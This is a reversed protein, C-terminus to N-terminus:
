ERDRDTETEREEQCVGVKEAVALGCQREERGTSCVIFETYTHGCLAAEREEGGGRRDRVRVCGTSEEVENEGKM